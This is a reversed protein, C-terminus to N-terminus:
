LQESAWDYGVRQLGMPYLMGPKGTKLWRRCGAWVWIRQTPSVIWGNLGRDEGKEEKRWDKGVDSDKRIDARRTLHDFYQLKLKLMLGELWFEPSIEKLISHNSWRVTWPVRLFRRQCWLEFADTWWHKAKKKDLVWLWIYCSSFAYSQSFPGKKAFYHRNKIHQRLKNNSKKWSALMKKLKM